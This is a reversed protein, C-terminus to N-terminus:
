DIPEKADPVPTGSKDYYLPFEANGYVNLDPMYEYTYKSRITGDQRLYYGVGGNRKDYTETAIERGDPMFWTTRYVLGRFYWERMMLAGNDYHYEAQGTGQPFGHENKHYTGPLADWYKYAAFLLASLTVIEILTKLRYKM